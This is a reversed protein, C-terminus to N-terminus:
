LAYLRTSKRLTIVHWEPLWELSLVTLFIIQSFWLGVVGSLVQLGISLCILGVLVAIYM